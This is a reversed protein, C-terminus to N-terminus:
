QLNNTTISESFVDTGGGHFLAAPNVAFEERTMLRPDNVGLVVDGIPRRSGFPFEEGLQQPLEEHQSKQAGVVAM